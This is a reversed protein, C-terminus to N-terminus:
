GPLLRIEDAQLLREVGDRTRLLLEGGPALGEVVGNKPGHATILSVPNGTLVCRVRVANLLDEFDGGIQHRRMSFQRIIASLVDPLPFERGSEIRLSTAIESVEPPFERTTVNIGIGVIAFDAAAEVLIGAVKRQRIWVDNPWKIGAQEGFSEVAEAVALGAALALRPWLAKPEDPRVLISFALSEGAPSFWAAGRRGRGATQNEALLILGDPAAAQGLKRIEDNTSGASERILLRFPEPLATAIPTFDDRM